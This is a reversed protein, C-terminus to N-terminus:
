ACAMEQASLQLPQGHPKNALNRVDEFYTDTLQQWSLQRTVKLGEASFQSRLSNNNLLLEIKNAYDEAVYPNCAFGNIGREIFDKSGGGNAIVCPLGSAMAEVVVNGYAESVSPFLFIDASAYLVALHQHGVKGTFIAKPMRAECPQRASGDGVILFNVMTQRAQMENYIAFLTELNKEWVLRSAFIITPNYNGTLRKIIRKDRKAPSFLSTDIGRKWIKMTLAYIGMACLEEKISESPVYVKNCRNYFSKHGQSIRQKVSKILFPAYKFYYDIYSIFHTHYISIVPLGNSNAYNLGFNGLFSPTSLHIVDPGFDLLKSKIQKQALVPLAMAYSKNFPLTAAPIKLSDFGTLHDPGTGYIFLYEFNNTDIHKILQFITRLAGDFDEVLIDAFFAV